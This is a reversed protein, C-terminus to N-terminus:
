ERRLDVAQSVLILLVAALNLAIGGYDIMKVKAVYNGPEHRVPLFFLIAVAAPVALMPILWFTWRWTLSEVLAGGIFPGSGNAMATVAGLIGAADVNAVKEM